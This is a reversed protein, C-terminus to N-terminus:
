SLIRRIAQGFLSAVSVVKIKKSARVEPFLPITNCVFVKEIPSLEIKELAGGVFLGHTATAFIRKAGKEHCAKAASVLTGATSCMDDALLVDKNEIDGIVNRVEVHTASLRCKDVAAMSAGLEGAFLRVLRMSGIDPGTVVVNTVGFEKCAEILKPRGHLNDLPVDFFGEVQGSHLDMTVVHTAGARELMNAVLRATIPEGPHDKHDQRAYGFYPIIATISRASARKLADIMLLLEVLYDNPQHAITQVVFTDVGRVDVLLRIDIENDPFREILCDALKVELFDAIERALEPHSSGSFILFKSSQSQM